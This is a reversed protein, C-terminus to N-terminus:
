VKRLIMRSRFLVSATSGVFVALQFVLGYYDTMIGGNWSCTGRGKSYSIQWNECLIKDQFFYLILFFFLTGFLAPLLMEVLKHKTSFWKKAGSIEKTKTLFYVGRM